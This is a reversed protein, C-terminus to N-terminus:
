QHVRVRDLPISEFCTMMDNLLGSQLVRGEWRERQSLIILIVAQKPHASRFCSISWDQGHQLLFKFRNNTEEASGFGSYMRM